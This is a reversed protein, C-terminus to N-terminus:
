QLVDSDAAAAEAEHSSVPRCIAIPTSETGQGLPNDRFLQAVFDKDVGDSVGLTESGLDNADIIAARTGIEDAIAQAVENPREPTLVVYRNYPPITYPTPGDIGAVRRGAVRYFDGRRGLLRSVAGVVAAVLIRLSGVERIAMEMTEPMGLGIGYSVKRVFRSLLRALWRPEIDGLPIARGQSAAVAKEAVCVLDGSRALPGAYRKVVEVIDEGAMVIHTRVPMRIWVEGSIEAPIGELSATQGTNNM